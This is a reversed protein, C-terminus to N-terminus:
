ARPIVNHLRDLSLRKPGGDGASEPLLGRLWRRENLLDTGGDTLGGRRVSQRYGQGLHYTTNAVIQDVLEPPCQHCQSPGSLVGGPRHAQNALGGVRKMSKVAEDTGV